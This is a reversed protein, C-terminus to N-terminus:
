YDLVKIEGRAIQLTYHQPKTSMKFDHHFKALIKAFSEAFSEAINQSFKAGGGGWLFFRFKKYLARNL